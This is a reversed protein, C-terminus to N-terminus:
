DSDRQVKVASQASQKWVTTQCSSYIVMKLMTSKITASDEDGVLVVVQVKRKELSTALEAALDPEMMAKSSGTWNLCCNLVRPKNGMRAAAECTACRKTRTGNAIVRGSCLGTM